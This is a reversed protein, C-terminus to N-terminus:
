IAPRRKWGRRLYQFCLRIPRGGNKGSHAKTDVSARPAGDSGLHHPQAGREHFLRVHPLDAPESFHIKRLSNRMYFLRGSHKGCSFPLPGRKGSLAANARVRGTIDRTISLIVTEQNIQLIRCSMLGNKVTGDKAVFEAELNEVYGNERLAAVMRERDEPNKWINLSISTKGIAEERTYGMIQTFGGNIDIYMGDDLRNLNISDPSTHFALRFREESEKLADEGAKLHTIDRTVGEVGIVNGDRDRSLHANTSAWWVSGDKRKLRAQFDRISGKEKLTALFAKREEPFLYVDEAMKMGISEEVTYGSLRYVSPSIFSIKGEMDTRYILDPSNDVLDRYMEIEKEFNRIRKLYDETM